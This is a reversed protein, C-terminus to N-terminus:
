NEVLVKLGHVCVNVNDTYSYSDLLKGNELDICLITAPSIGVFLLNGVRDLGRVFVAKPVDIQPLFLKKLLGKLFYNLKNKLLLGRILKFETLNITRILEGENLDYFHIAYKYTNNVIALGDENILLNHPHDLSSDQIIIEEKDLNAIVGFRNFLGYLEGRWKAIANLHLHSPHRNHKPELFKTRNDDNKKIKLPMLGLRRQFEPMERPWYQQFMHGNQRLDLGLVADISTSTVWIMGDGQSFTEHISALLPHSIDKKHNLKYDYIELTHYDAVVVDNGFFEIGRGGRGNGRPNPDIIEPNKPFIPQKAEITKSEWDLLVIEGGKLLPSSRVVTSFYVKFSSDLQTADSDSM